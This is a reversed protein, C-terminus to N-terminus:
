TCIFRGGASLHEHVKNLATLQDAASVLEAFSHFPIIILDFQKDLALECINQQIVSASLKRRELKNRLIRLMPQSSDVCTLRVGEEILSLSLRGTGSMLELVEGSTKKAEKIFFPIDANYKVYRDYYDAIRDYNM